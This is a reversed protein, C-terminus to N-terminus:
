GKENLGTRFFHQTQSVSCYFIPFEGMIEESEPDRFDEILLELDQNHM